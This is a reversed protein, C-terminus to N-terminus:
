APPKPPATALHALRMRGWTGTERRPTQALLAALGIHVVMILGVNAFFANGGAVNGDDLGWFVKLRANVRECATRGKYLREFTKTARPIPPFRRLDVEQRVRVTMGYSKNANCRKSCPCAWGEHRAPCRYKLTGRQPERGIYAMAYRVPPDSVMDYCFLTGAEDHVVNGIGAGQISREHEEKWLARQQIVPRVGAKKLGVHIDVDDAAKDYALTEMRAKPLNAQARQLLALLPQNDATSAPTITYALAVEHQADCILHIKYGFWELLHTTRGEADTYEKRGGDPQPRLQPARGRYRRAALHTADGAAHVGLSLHEKALRKVMRNFVEELLTRFPEQGLLRLFRSMNWAKPVAQVSDMGGLRRLDQNRELEALTLRLTPHRLLPQLLACFWLVRIPYDDRGKGRSAILAELLRADPLQAFFRSITKLDPSDDLRNWAFLPDTTYLKM